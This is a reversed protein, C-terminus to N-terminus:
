FVLYRFPHRKIDVFLLSMQREADTLANTLSSDRLARGATGRPEDVLSRVISLENRIDAVENILTSDRRFRGLSTNNSALLARVSDARAMVRNSRETLGGHMFQGVTGGSNLRDALRSAQARTRSLVAVGSGNPANLFAGMTGETGQLQAVLVKVNDIIVPFEKSAAGFQGVANDVDSQPHTTVTDGPRIQATKATGPSMYIVPAGIITGGNQIQAIADRHIAPRHKALVEMEIEIRASTDAETPRRFRIDKIKGIKQGSLWVESGVLVGRAEGVHAYLLMTDGHLAGVRSYKMVVFVVAAIALCAIIGGRVDSWSLRRAM